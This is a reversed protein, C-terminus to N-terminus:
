IALNESVAEIVLDCNRGESLSKNTKLQKKALAAREESILGRQLSGSALKDFTTTAKELSEDSIDFLLVEADIKTATLYAIGTGMFGSGAILVSSIAAKTSM